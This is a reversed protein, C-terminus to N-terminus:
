VLKTACTFEVEPLLLDLALFRRGWENDVKEVCEVVDCSDSTFEGGKKLICELAHLIIEHEWILKLEGRERVDVDPTANWFEWPL